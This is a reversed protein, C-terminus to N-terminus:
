RLIKRYIFHIGLLIVGILGAISNLPSIVASLWESDLEILQTSLAQAFAGVVNQLPASLLLELAVILVVVAIRGIFVNRRRKEVRAMVQATFGNETVSRDAQAFLSDLWPDREDNM